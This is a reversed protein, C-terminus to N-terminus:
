TPASASSLPALVYRAREELPSTRETLWELEIAEEGIPTAVEDGAWCAYVEVPGHALATRALECLRERSRQEALFKAREEDTMAELLAIADATREIGEFNLDGSNFGCGCGEHSGVYTVHPSTLRARIPADVAVEEIYAYGTEPRPEATRALSPVPVSTGIWVMLCM